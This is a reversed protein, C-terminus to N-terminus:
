AQPGVDVTGLLKNVRIQRVANNYKLDLEAGTSSGDPFFLVAYGGGALEIVGSGEIQVTEPIATPKGEDMFIRRNEEDIIVRVAKGRGIAASRAHKLTSLFNAEFRTEESKLIGSGVAVFVLSSMLGVIVMVVLLEMLTFGKESYPAKCRAGGINCPYM